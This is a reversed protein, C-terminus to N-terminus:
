FLCDFFYISFYISLYIFLLDFYIRAFVIFMSLLFNLVSLFYFIVKSRRLYTFLEGGEVYEMIMYLNHDDQFSSLM